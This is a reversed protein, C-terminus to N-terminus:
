EKEKGGIVGRLWDGVRGVEGFVFGFGFSWGRIRVTYIFLYVLAWNSVCFALFVGFYPWKDGPSLNLTALYEDGSRYPCYQCGATAGPDVLYGGASQAFGGAYSACTQGPPPDFRGTEEATCRVPVGQLTAALVGGIWYTSPNLYYMWYRWFVPLQAYPRVVGNFLSFAVFWFPLINSIVTFSPAFACIWQGWSTMFLFMCLTMLLVYGVTSSDTPLGTAFYWTLWYIIASGAAMPLECVVMATTFAFWGYIRSPHERAQWLAM